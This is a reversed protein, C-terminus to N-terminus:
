LMAQVYAGAGVLNINPKEVTWVPVRRLQLAFNARQEMRKRFAAINVSSQMLSAASKFLFVGGWAGTALVADGVFSGLLESRKAAIDPKSIVKAAEENYLENDEAHLAHEWSVPQKRRGLNKALSQEFEDFPPFGCHGAESEVHVFGGHRDPLLIAAGLGRYYNIALWRNEKNFDPLGTSDISRHTMPSVQTAAWLMAATDNIVVPQNQFLYRLGTISIIWPCRAIRVSDSIIAGSAVIACQSGALKIGSVRGYHMICDTATPFDSTKYIQLNQLLGGDARNTIALSIEPGDIDILVWNMLDSSLATEM